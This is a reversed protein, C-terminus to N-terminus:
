RKRLRVTIDKADLVTDLPTEDAYARTKTNNAGIFLEVADAEVNKLIGEDLRAILDDTTAGAFSVVKSDIKGKGALAANEDGIYLTLAALILTLM